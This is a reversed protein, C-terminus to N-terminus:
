RWRPSPSCAHRRCQPVRLRRLRRLRRRRQRRAQADRANDSPSCPACKAVARAGPRACLARQPCGCAGGKVAAAARLPPTRTRSRAELAHHLVCRAARASCRPSPSHALRCRRRRCALLCAVRASRPLAAGARDRAGATAATCREAHVGHSPSASQARMGLSQSPGTGVHGGSPHRSVLQVGFYHEARGNAYVRMRPAHALSRGHDRATHLCAAECRSGGLLTTVCIAPVASLECLAVARM